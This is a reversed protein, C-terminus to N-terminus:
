KATKLAPLLDRLAWIETRRNTGATVAIRKGDPHVSLGFPRAGNMALGLNEPVGGDASILWPGFESKQDAASMGYAYILRRSDPMWALAIRANAGAPVSVVERPAESGSTPVVEITPRRKEDLSVFALRRGDPSVTLFGFTPTQGRYLEKEQGTTLDRVVIAISRPEPIRRTLIVKGDPSWASSLIPAPVSLSVTGTRADIRYLGPVGLNNAPASLFRGDPLWHLQLAQDGVREVESLQLRHEKGTEIALIALVFPEYLWGTGSVYALYQGDPSWEASTYFGVHRVLKKPSRIKRTTPDLTALYVDNVWASVGYYYSGDRTFGLGHQFPTIDKKVLEPVGRLTGDTVQLAWADWTGRRNSAFLIRGDPAWGLLRDNAPHKVLPFESGGDVAIGSIDHNPSGTQSPFDYAIYHGDPSFNMWRKWEATERRSNLTKLKRVSGDVASVLVIEYTELTRRLAALIRTGDPSWDYPIIDRANRADNDRYLVRTGSGEIGILRLEAVGDNTFWNYAIHQNDPSIASSEGTGGADLQRNTLRRDTGTTLDRVFLDGDFAGFDWYSFFRGDKSVSGENYIEAVKRPEPNRNLTVQATVTAVILCSLVIFLLARKMKAENAVSVLLILFTKVTASVM